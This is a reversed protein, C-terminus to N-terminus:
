AGVNAGMIGSSDMPTGGPQPMEPMGGEEPMMGEAMGLAQSQDMMSTDDLIYQSPNKENWVERLLKIALKKRDIFQEERLTMYADISQARLAEKNVTINEVDFDIDADLDIDALDSATVALEMSVENGQDDEDTIYLVKEEDWNDRCLKLLHIVMSRYFQFYLQKVREIKREAAQAFISQGTATKVTVAEQSGKNLDLLGSIFQADERSKQEALIITNSIDPPTIWTPPRDKYGAGSIARPDQWATLDIESGIEYALKPNSLLDAYKIEQGRRINLETQSERLTKGIGYGFFKNPIHYWRQYKCPSENIAESHLIKKVTYIIYYQQSASWQVDKVFKAKDKPLTGRYFYVTARKIDGKGIEDLGDIDIEIDSDPEVVVGYIEEIEDVSMKAYRISYPMKDGDITFESEPSFYEKLPDSVSVVPDNYKYITTKIVEGNEDLLPQGMEDEADIEEIESVFSAHGATWGTLVFWSATEQTFTQLDLKDKLYEYIAQIKKQKEEDYKGRNRIILDPPRNFISAMYSEHTAQIYPVKFDYRANPNALNALLEKQTGSLEFDKVCRKVEDHFNETFKKAINLRTTLLGLLEKNDESKSNKAM